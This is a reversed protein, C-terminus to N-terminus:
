RKKMKAAEQDVLTDVESGLAVAFDHIIQLAFTVNNEREKVPAASENDYDCVIDCLAHLKALEIGVDSMDKINGFYYSM